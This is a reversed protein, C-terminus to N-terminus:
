HLKAYAGADGIQGNAGVDVCAVQLKCKINSNGHMM